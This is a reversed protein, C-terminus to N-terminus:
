VVVDFVNTRVGDALHVGNRYRLVERHGQRHCRGGGIENGGQVRSLSLVAVMVLFPALVSGAMGSGRHGSRGRAVTTAPVTPPAPVVLGASSSPSVQASRCRRLTSTNAAAGAPPSRVARTKPAIVVPWWHSVQARAPASRSASFHCSPSR